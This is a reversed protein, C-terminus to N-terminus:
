GKYNGPLPELVPNITEAPTGPPLVTITITQGSNNAIDLQNAIVPGWNVATNQLNYDAVVYAGGQYVSGNWLTFGFGPLPAGAVLMLVNETPDWTADCAAVACLKAGSSLAITGSAYITGLGQYIANANNNVIIDGDFFVTGSIVLTGPVGGVGPTWGIRGNLYGEADGARCDYATAPTLDFVGRSRNLAGDTDFGGPVSGVTCPSAPGPAAKQYWGALDIPPKQLGDTVRTITTAYVDDSTGCDRTGGNKTICGGRLKAVAIPAQPYGISGNNGIDVTGEVQLPSGTIHANEAVCLNGRVYLPSTILSNNKVSMCGSTADSYLYGWLRSDGQYVARVRNTVKRVIPLGGAPNRVTGTGELKWITGELTGKWAATGAALTASRVPVAGANFPDAANYLSSFANNLGAEALAHSQQAGTSYAASHQNQTVYYTLSVGVLLLVVMMGIAMVMAIGQESALLRRIRTRASAAMSNM